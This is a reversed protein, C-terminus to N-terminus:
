ASVKSYVTEKFARKLSSGFATAPLNVRYIDKILFWSNYDREQTTTFQTETTLFDAWQQIMLM